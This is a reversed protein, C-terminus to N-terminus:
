FIQLRARLCRGRLFPIAARVRNDGLAGPERGQIITITKGQYFPAQAFASTLSLMSYAVLAVTKWM